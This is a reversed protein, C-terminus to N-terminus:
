LTFTCAEQSFRFRHMPENPQIGRSACGANTFHSNLNAFEIESKTLGASGASDTGACRNVQRVRSFSIKKSTSSTQSASM